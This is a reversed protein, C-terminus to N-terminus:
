RELGFDWRRGPGEGKIAGIAIRGALTNLDKWGLGVKGDVTVKGLSEGVNLLGLAKLQTKVDSSKQKLNVKCLFVHYFVVRRAKHEAEEKMLFTPTPAVGKHSDKPCQSVSHIKTDTQSEWLLDWSM